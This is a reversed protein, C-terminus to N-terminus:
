GKFDKLGINIIVALIALIILAQSILIGAEFISKASLCTVASLGIALNLFCLVIVSRRQTLGLNELRHSLHDRASYLISDKISRTVGRKYRWLVIFVLDFIPVAMILAPVLYSIMPYESWEATIAITSLVFGLCLSGGNGLFIKAPNFNYPLFGLMAGCLSASIIGFLYQKTMLAAIFFLASAIAGIGAALGDMNDFANIASIVLLVWFFTVALDLPYFGSLKIIVGLRTLIIVFLGIVLIKGTAPIKKKDDWMGLILMVLGGLLIIKSPNSYYFTFFVGSVLAVYVALGGLIPMPAAHNKRKDPYDLFRLRHSAMVLIPTLILSVLISVFFAIVYRESWM